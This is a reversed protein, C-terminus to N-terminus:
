SAIVVRNLHPIHGIQRLHQLYVGVNANPGHANTLTKFRLCKALLQYQQINKHDLNPLDLLYFDLYYELLNYEGALTRGVGRMNIASLREQFVM